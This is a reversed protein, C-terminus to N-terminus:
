TSQPRHRAGEPSILPRPVLRVAGRSGPCSPHHAPIRQATHVNATARIATLAAPHVRCRRDHILANWELSSRRKATELRRIERATHASDGLVQTRAIRPRIQPYLLTVAPAREM